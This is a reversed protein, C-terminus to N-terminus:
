HPLAATNIKLTTSLGDLRPMMIDLIILQEPESNIIDLAQLGDYAKM